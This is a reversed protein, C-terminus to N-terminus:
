EKIFVRLDFFFREFPLPPPHHCLPFSQGGSGDPPLAFMDDEDLVLLAEDSRTWERVGVGEDREDRKGKEVGGGM